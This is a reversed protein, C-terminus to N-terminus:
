HTYEKFEVLILEVEGFIREKIDEINYLYKNGIVIIDENIIEPLKDSSDTEYISLNSKRAITSKGLASNGYFLWVPRKDKARITKIFLDLNINYYGSINEDYNGNSFNFVNNNINNHKYFIDDIEIKSIPKYDYGGFNVVNKINIYSLTIVNKKDESIHNKKYLDIEIKSSDSNMGLLIHKEMEENLEIIINNEIKYNIGIYKEIRLGIIKM